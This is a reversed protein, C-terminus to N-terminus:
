YIAPSPLKIENMIREYERIYTALDCDLVTTAERRIVARLAQPLDPYFGELTWNPQSLQGKNKGVKILEGGESLYELKHNWEDVLIRWKENITVITM